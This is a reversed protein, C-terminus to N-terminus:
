INLFFFINWDYVSNILNFANSLYSQGSSTIASYILFWLILVFMGGHHHIVLSPFFTSHVRSNAALYSIIFLKIIGIKQTTDSVMKHFKSRYMNQITIFNEWVFYATTTKWIFFYAITTKWVFFYHSQQKEPQNLSDNQLQHCRKQSSMNLFLDFNRRFQISEFIHYFYAIRLFFIM